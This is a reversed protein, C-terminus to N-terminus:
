ASLYFIAHECDFNPLYRTAIPSLRLRNSWFVLGTLYGLFAPCAPLVMWSILWSRMAMPYFLSWRVGRIKLLRLDPRFRYRRLSANKGSLPNFASFAPRAHGKYQVGSFLSRNRSLLGKQLLARARYLRRHWCIKGEIKGLPALAAIATQSIKSHTLARTGSCPPPKIYRPGDAFRGRSIGTLNRTWFNSKQQAIRCALIVPMTIKGDYFDDGCQKGMVDSNTGYDLADDCILFARGLWGTIM